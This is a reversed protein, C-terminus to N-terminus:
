SGFCLAAAAGANALYLKRGQLVAFCATTGSLSADFGCTDADRMDADVSACADRMARLRKKDGGKGAGMASAAALQRPILTSAYKAASRGWPGHGDFVGAPTCPAARLLPRASVGADGRRLGAGSAVRVAQAAAGWGGFGRWAARAAGAFIQSPVDAFNRLVVADDQCDAKMWRANAEACLREEESVSATLWYFSPRIGVEASVASAVHATHQRVQWSDLSGVTAPGARRPLLHPEPAVIAAAM